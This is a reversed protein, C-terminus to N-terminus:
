RKITFISSLNNNDRKYVGYNLDFSNNTKIIDTKINLINNIETKLYNKNDQYYNNIIKQKKM